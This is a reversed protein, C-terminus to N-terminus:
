DKYSYTEDPFLGSSVEDVYAQVALRALEHLGDKRTSRGFSILDKESSIDKSFKPTVQPVYNKAFKPRFNPYLGLLDHLILLQGHTFKGAGIGFIISKSKKTLQEASQPPIAELLIGFVGAKELQGVSDHLQKLEEDGRGVVRYGGFAASSQPTLGIHGIVSIGADVIARARNAMVGGGELKIADCGSEKVFRMANNVADYDSAEYSGKPMDGVVFKNPAGRRVASALHIMEDMSVPVTDSYGLVVMGASDGVLIMDLGTENLATALSYDYCTLWSIPEASVRKENLSVINHKM